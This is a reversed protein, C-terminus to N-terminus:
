ALAALLEAERYLFECQRNLKKLRAKTTFTGLHAELYLEDRWVDLTHEDAKARIHDFAQAASSFRTPVLGPFDRYRMAYELMEHDVGCGGDGWGFCYISEGIKPKNSFDRWHADLHDPELTGIFHGPPVVNLM